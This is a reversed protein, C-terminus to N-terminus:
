YDKYKDAIIDLIKTVDEVSNATLLKIKLDRSDPLNKIFNAFHRRMTIVGGREGKYVIFEYLQQKIYNVKEPFSLKFYKGTELFYKIQKFIWPNGISARGVMIADVGYNNFCELAKDPSDIDGNGIIPITISPNKKVKAIYSWNAQGSYMQSKTRAHITLAKIGTEQLKEAVEEIVIKSSDWGIRTKATVPINVADIVKRTIDIMLPINQLLGAGAGRRSIKKVPCGFNLDIVDPNFEEAIKAADAMIDPDNGYLQIGVPRDEESIMLKKLGKKGGRILGDSSIFETYMFDAGFFKCMKRFPYDTVDEMPALFVPFKGLQTNGIKLM